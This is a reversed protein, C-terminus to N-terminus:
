DYFVDGGGLLDGKGLMGGERYHPKVTIRGTYDIRNLLIHLGIESMYEDVAKKVGQWQGYDDIILVGGSSLRPYLHVLEHRSSGYWDTDLRLLAIKEPVNGPITNEVKGKVFHFRDKPYGTSRLNDRVGELPCFCWDSSDDSIRLQSFKEQAPRGSISIDVRSPATMGCFTDYLYIDREFDGIELLALAMAMASGGRWVGCEVMAGEIRNKAIYRTAEILAYVREPSTMTYKEITRFICTTSEDFDLPLGSEKADPEKYRIVEFGMKRTIKRIIHNFVKRGMNHKM